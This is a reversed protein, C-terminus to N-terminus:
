LYFLNCEQKNIAPSQQFYTFTTHKNGINETDDKAIQKAM